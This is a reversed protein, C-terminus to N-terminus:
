VTKGFAKEKQEVLQLSLDKEMNNGMLGTEKMDVDMQGNSYGMDKNRTTTINVKTFGAMQGPSNEKEMCKIQYGTGLTAGVMQGFTHELVRSTTINSSAKLAIGMWGSFYAMVMSKIRLFSDLTAHEMRGLKLVKEMSNTM